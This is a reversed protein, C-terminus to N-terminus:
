LTLIEIIEGILIFHLTPFKQLTLFTKVLSRLKKLPNVILILLVCGLVAHCRCLHFLLRQAIM